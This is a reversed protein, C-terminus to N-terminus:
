VDGDFWDIDGDDDGDLRDVAHGVVWVITLLAAAFLATVVWVEGEASLYMGM